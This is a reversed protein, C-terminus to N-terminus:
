LGRDNIQAVIHGDPTMAQGAIHSNSRNVVIRLDFDGSKIHKNVKKKRTEYRHLVKKAKNSVNVMIICKM